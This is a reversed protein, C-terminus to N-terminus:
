LHQFDEVSMKEVHLVMLMSHLDYCLFILMKCLRVDTFDFIDM